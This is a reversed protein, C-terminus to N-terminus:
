FPVSEETVSLAPNTWGKWEVSSETAMNNEKVKRLFKPATRNKTEGNRDEYTESTPVFEIEWVGDLDSMDSLSPMAKQISPWVVSQWEKDFTLYSKTWEAASSQFTIDVQLRRFKSDDVGKIFPAKKVGKKVLMQQFQFVVSLESKPTSESKLQDLVNSM